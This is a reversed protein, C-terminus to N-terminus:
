GRGEVVCSESGFEASHDCGDATSRAKVTKYTGHDPRSQRTHAMNTTMGGDLEAALASGVSVFASLPFDLLLLAVERLKLSLPTGTLGVIQVPRTKYSYVTAIKSLCIFDLPRQATPGRRQRALIACVLCYSGSEPRPRDHFLKCRDLSKKRFAM